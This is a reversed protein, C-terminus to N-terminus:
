VLFPGAVFLWLVEETEGFAAIVAVRTPYLMNSVGQGRSPWCLYCLLDSMGEWQVSAYSPNFGESVRHKVNPFCWCCLLLM